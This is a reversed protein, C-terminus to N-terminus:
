DETYMQDIEKAFREAIVARKLKLTSTLEGSEESWIEHLLNFNRLRQYNELTENLREIEEKFLQIVKPNIVMYQPATWHVNNEQCWVKLMIFNPVILATPFPRKFGVIMSQEIYPSTKLLNELFQPAIFKGSSTKFIDKKRDTIQLFRKHVIKGIDGTRFWGEGDIVEKTSDENKFYGLMVNPGKVLIEGEENKNPEDIKVEVGPIPIGVTGFRVGGPEFRNFSIVPSTETLGYGERIEIGAASFLRGLEPLLAAAGVGIGEIKGGLAKRWRRYVLFDAFISKFWYGLSMGKRGKYKKGLRIVWHIIRRKYGSQNAAEELIGDHLKELLRPVSTFYHPRVEQITELINEKVNGYYLSAGAAMYTYTVMREFIHSLPLFSFTRKDCNVPTLAITSKINSVINKHSLMVGKPVGTTGSTYIITALDDEHIAAKLGQFAEMHKETPVKVLSDWGPVDPLKELTYVGKLTKVDEKVAAVKEYLERNSVVCYKAESNNLIFELNKQSITAHIPVVIVGIQLMGMDLFNWRPTGQHTMIAVKDGRKLGLDLFGASVSEIQAICEDTSYSQWKLSEKSALAVKQPYRAQQYPFIDFLRRFDM